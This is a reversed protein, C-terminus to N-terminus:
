HFTPLRNETKKVAFIVRSKLNVVVHVHLGNMVFCEQIQQRWGEEGLRPIECVVMLVTDEAVRLEITNSVTLQMM